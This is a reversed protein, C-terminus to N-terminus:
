EMSNFIFTGRSVPSFPKMMRLWLFLIQQYSKLGSIVAFKRCTILIYKWSTDEFSIYVLPSCDINLLGFGRMSRKESETDEKMRKEGKM